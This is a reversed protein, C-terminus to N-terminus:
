LDLRVSFGALLSGSLATLDDQVLWGLGGNAATTVIPGGLLRTFDWHLRVVGAGSAYGSIWTVDAGYGIAAGIDTIPVGLVGGWSGTGDPDIELALGNTLSGAAGFVSADFDAQAPPAYGVIMTASYFTARAPPGLWFRVATGSGDIGMNSSGSPPGGADTVPAIAPFGYGLRMGNPAVGTGSAPLGTAPDVTAVAQVYGDPTAIQGARITM